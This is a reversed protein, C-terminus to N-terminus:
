LWIGKSDVVWKQSFTVSKFSQHDVLLVLIDAQQLATTLSVLEVKGCLVDPLQTIHPEVALVKGRHWDALKQTIELAPSERLDGVNAKFALGFCATTIESLKRDTKTACDAVALKIKDLIWEAKHDNVQRATQILRTNERDQSILFYPDVAICHGGVGAGPQLINVRPHLNALRILEWVDISFQDCLMSLENAFAINVDRFSNETLKCMEATRSDTAICQGTVFLQYLSVAQETSKPSIGGIIRDNRFIEQMINGPLVREPCYALYIEPLDAREKNLWQYVQETTGIPSTSELVVLNGQKLLPAIMKIANKIYSLDPQNNKLLPTPVAIIFVDAPEPTQTAFFKGSSVAQLLAQTIDPEDIPSKGQNIQSVIHENVDVGIVMRGTQAFVVATPLGIYGLGMVCIRNFNCM